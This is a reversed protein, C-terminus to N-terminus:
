KVARSGNCYLYIVQRDRALERVLAAARSMHEEDLEAFPDDLIVFPSDSGFINDALALRFCLAVVARQGGSMHGDSRLQGGGEFAVRLNGDIHVSRGLANKLAESYRGFSQAVPAVFKDGLAREAERIYNIASTYAYYKKNYGDLLTKAEELESLKDSLGEVISEDDSIDREAVALRRRLEDADGDNKVAPSLTRGLEDARKQEEEAEASLSSYQASLRSLEAAAEAYPRGELSYKKLIEDATLVADSPKHPKKRGLLLIGFTAGGFLIGAGLAAGGALANFSLLVGGAIILILSLVLSMITPTKMASSMKDSRAGGLSALGAAVNLAAIDGQSPVGGPASSLDAMKTRKRAASARLEAVRARADGESAGRASEAEIASLRDSLQTYLAYKGDLRESVANINAIESQIRKIKSELAPIAGRNGRSLLTKAAKELAASAREAESGGGAASAYEGLRANIGDTPSLEGWDSSIFLTREFSQEDLGFVAAGIEGSFGSFPKDGRYVKLDEGSSRDFFREIRYVEGGKEFTLNGGFKGGSFPYYHRRANFRSRATDAPLGYFMAKIFAALTTKGGGNPAYLSTLGDGFPIDYDKLSGFNVIHCHLLKM